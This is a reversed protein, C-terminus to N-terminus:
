SSSRSDYLLKTFKRLEAGLVERQQELEILTEREQQIIQFPAKHLFKENSLKTVKTSIAKDLQTLHREVRAIEKSVDVAQSLDVFIEIAAVTITTQAGIEYNTADPSIETIKSNSLSELLVLLSRLKERAETSCRICVNTMSKPPINNVSRIRRINELIERFLSFDEESKARKIASIEGSPWEAVMLSYNYPYMSRKRNSALLSTQGNTVHNLHWWIDETVFPIFPHLLRLLIDLVHALVSQTISRSSADSLKVKAIEVYTNCFDGWSFDYLKRIADSFRYTNLSETVELTANELRELIWRDEIALLDECSDRPNFDQLNILTFRAANWLKNVYNRANEFRESVVAARALAKDELSEAWQTSFLKGCSKCKISPKSRNERTQDTLETCYPCEYQVPMRVDQTETALWALAFRLADPGFKSAIELPDVGNGKSKSMTEGLGDLIKPHIFVERFPVKGTNNLSMLIMRAVWLSIIDRSTILSDTPYFYSMEATLEPWGLTSHPWLASSFWTDLVDPDRIFGMQEIESELEIDENKICVFLSSTSHDIRDVQYSIDNRDVTLKTLLDLTSRLDSEPLKGKSWIPIRHGWWLQRSVPWDRKESLWDICGKQYRNPIITVQGASLAEIASQSLSDMRVFWQDTLLPEIPTKSRDSFPLEIKRNEVQTLFGRDGLDRAIAERADRISLGSYQGAHHNLTGDRNLINIMPLHYRCGVEYDNLDHAPTIKVCGTGLDPKAWVDTIIPIEREILPIVAKRGILAMDRIQILTGLTREKLAVLDQLQKHLSERELGNSEALRNSVRQISDAFANEPEPHVAIATDGLLTEPRTTAIEIYKPEGSQPNLIPYRIHWFFGEVTENFVEDDSVATQLFTDWNVLKKGRYILRKRFLDFFTARVASACQKDLTFRTRDWDCSCGISKLQKLIREEYQDKWEWIRAILVDRGLDIRTKNEQEKLRKEVVAQTAIGAHDTGPVWLTEFGQMRRFRVIIDQLTNNLGHGLHLAGTVNPPPIVITFPKRRYDVSAHWSKQADWRNIIREAATSFDFRIPITTKPDLPDTM